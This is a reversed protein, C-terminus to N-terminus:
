GEAPRRFAGYWELLAIERAVAEDAEEPGSLVQNALAQFGGWIFVRAATAPDLGPATRGAQQEDRLWREALDVFRQLQGDWFARAEPDYATVELVAALLHRRERYYALDRTMAAVFGARGEVPPASGILDFAGDALTDILRMLLETKSRFHMYFTSRAIGAEAALRQVGLETFSAGGALLRETAELVKAEAAARRDVAAAPRRTVSVM